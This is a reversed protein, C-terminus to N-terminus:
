QSALAVLGGCLSFILLSPIDTSVHLLPDENVEGRFSLTWLRAIWIFFLPVVGILLMPRRYLVETAGSNYYLLLVILSLMASVIGFIAVPKSDKPIYGRGPVVSEERQALRLLENHRKLLALSLFLFFSFSMLWFSLPINTAAGGAVIRISYLIALTAVDILLIRKLWVSYAITLLFYTGAAMLLASSKSFAVGLGLLALVSSMAVAQSRSVAGSPIPRHRKEPHLRDHTVDLVDNLLYASSACACFVCFAVVSSLVYEAAFQHGAGLPVFILLNKLWQRPRMSRVTGRMAALWYRQTPHEM